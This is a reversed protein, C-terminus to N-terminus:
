KGKLMYALTFAFVKAVSQLSFKEDSDGTNFVQGDLDYLSIAFKDPSVKALEPIYDAQKGQLNMQNVEAFIEDLIQQFM